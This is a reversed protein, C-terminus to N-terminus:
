KSLIEGKQMIGGFFPPYDYIFSLGSIEPRKSLLIMM